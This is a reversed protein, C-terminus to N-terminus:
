IYRAEKLANLGLFHLALSTGGAVLGPVIDQFALGILVSAAVEVGLSSRLGALAAEQAEETRKERLDLYSPNILGHIQAVSIASLVSQGVRAWGTESSGLTPHWAERAFRRM